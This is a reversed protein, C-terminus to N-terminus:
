LEVGWELIQQHLSPSVSEMPVLNIEFSSGLSDLSCWAKWFDKAAIREVALDIDSRQNFWAGHALSGYVIVRTAGFDTKSLRVAQGAINWALKRREAAKYRLSM